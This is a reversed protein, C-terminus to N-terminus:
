LVSSHIIVSLAADPLNWWATRFFLLRIHLQLLIALYLRYRSSATANIDFMIKVIYRDNSSPNTLLKRKITIVTTTQRRPSLFSNRMTPLSKFLLLTLPRQAIFERVAHIGPPAEDIWSEGVHVFILIYFILEELSRLSHISARNIIKKPHSCM